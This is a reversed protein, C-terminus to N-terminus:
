ENCKETQIADLLVSDSDIYTWDDPPNTSVVLNDTHHIHAAIWAGVANRGSEDKSGFGFTNLGGMEQGLHVYTKHKPCGIEWDISM